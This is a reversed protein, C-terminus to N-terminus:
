RLSSRWDRPVTHKVFGNTGGQLGQLVMVRTLKISFTGMM